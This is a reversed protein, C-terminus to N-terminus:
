LISTKVFKTLSEHQTAGTSAVIKFYYTKGATLTTFTASTDGAPTNQSSVVNTFHNADERTEFLYATYSTASPFDEWDLRFSTLATNSVNVDFEGYYIKAKKLGLTSHNVTITAANEDISIACKGAPIQSFLTDDADQKSPFVFQDTLLKATGSTGGDVNFVDNVVLNGSSDEVCERIIIRGNGAEAYSFVNYKTGDVSVRVGELYISGGGASITKFVVPNGNILEHERVFLGTSTSHLGSYAGWGDLIRSFLLSNKSADFCTFMSNSSVDLYYWSINNKDAVFIDRIINDYVGTVRIGADPRAFDPIVNFFNYPAVKGNNTTLAAIGLHTAQFCDYWGYTTDVNRIRFFGPNTGFWEQTSARADDYIYGQLRGQFAGFVQLPIGQSNEGWIELRSTNTAFHNYVAGSKSSKTFFQTNGSNLQAVRRTTGDSEISNFGFNVSGDKPSADFNLWKPKSYDNDIYRSLTNAPEIALSGDQSIVAGDPLTEMGGGHVLIESTISEIASIDSTTPNYFVQFGGPPDSDLLIRFGVSMDEDTRCKLWLENTNLNIRFLMDPNLGRELSAMLDSEETGDMEVIITDLPYLASRRVIEVDTKGRILIAVKAWMDSSEQAPVKSFYEFVKAVSDKGVSGGNYPVTYVETFSGNWVLCALSPLFDSVTVIIANGASDFMNVFTTTSEAPLISIYYSKAGAYFAPITESTAYGNFAYNAVQNEVSKVYDNISLAYDQQKSPQVETGFPRDMLTSKIKQVNVDWQTM